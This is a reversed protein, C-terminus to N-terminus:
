RSRRKFMWGVLLMTLRALSLSPLIQAAAVRSVERAEREVRGPRSGAAVAFLIAAVVLDGGAICGLAGARPLRAELLVYLAGHGVIVAGLLFAGAFLSLGFQIVVRRLRHRVRVGEAQVALSALQVPRM